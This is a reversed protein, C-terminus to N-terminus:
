CALGIHLVTGLGDQQSNKESPCTPAACWSRRRKCAAALGPATARSPVTPHRYPRVRHTKRMTASFSWWVTTTPKKRRSKKFWRTAPCIFFSPAGEYAFAGWAKMSHQSARLTLLTM